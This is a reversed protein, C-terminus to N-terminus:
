LYILHSPAPLPDSDYDYYSYEAKTVAILYDTVRSQLRTVRLYCGALGVSSQLACTLAYSFFLCPGGGWDYLGEALIIGGWTASVKFCLPGMERPEVELCGDLWLEKRLSCIAQRTWTGALLLQGQFVPLNTTIPHSHRRLVAAEVPRNNM